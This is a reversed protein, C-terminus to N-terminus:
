NVITCECSVENEFFIDDIRMGFFDSIVKAEKLTFPIRELEKKHYAGRTKFGLLESMEKCTIKKEKRIGRLKEFV